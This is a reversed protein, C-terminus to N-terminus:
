WVLADLNDLNVPDKHGAFGKYFSFNLAQMLWSSEFNEFPTVRPLFFPWFLVFSGTLTMQSKAFPFAM